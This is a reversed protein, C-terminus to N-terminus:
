AVSYNGKIDVKRYETCCYRHHKHTTLFVFHIMQWDTETSIQWLSSSNTINTTCYELSELQLDNDCVWSFVASLKRTSIVTCRKSNSVSSIKTYINIFQQLQIVNWLAKLSYTYNHIEYAKQATLSHDQHLRPLHLNIKETTAGSQKKGQKQSSKHMNYFFCEYSFTIFMFYQLDTLIQEGNLACIKCTSLATMFKKSANQTPRAGLITLTLKLQWNNKGLTQKSNLFCLHWQGCTDPINLKYCM